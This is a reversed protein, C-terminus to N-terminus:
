KSQQMGRKVSEQVPKPLSGWVASAQQSNLASFVAAAGQDANMGASKAILWFSALIVVAFVALSVLLQPFSVGPRYTTAPQEPPKLAAILDALAKEHDTLADNTANMRTIAKKEVAQYGEVAGTQGAKFAEERISEALGKAERTLSSKIADAHEALAMRIQNADGSLQRSIGALSEPLSTKLEALKDLLRNSEEFAIDMAAQQASTAAKKWDDRGDSM